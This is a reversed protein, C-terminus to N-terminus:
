NKTEKAVNIEMKNLKSFIESRKMEITNMLESIEKPLRGEFKTQLLSHLKSLYNGLSRLEKNM